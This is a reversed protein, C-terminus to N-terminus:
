GGTKGQFWTRISDTKAEFLRYMVWAYGFTLMAFIGIELLHSGYDVPAWPQRWLSLIMTQFPVHVAYLTYSMAAGGISLRVLLTPAVTKRIGIWIYLVVAFPVAVVLGAYLQPAGSWKAMITLICWVLTPLILHHLQFEKKPLSAVIWGIAWMSGYLLLRPGVLFGIAIAVAACAIRINPKYRSSTAFWVLPFWAYYWFEYALSWLAVNSGLTGVRSAQLFVLGGFFQSYLLSPHSLCKYLGSTGFSVYGILDLSLGIVMAPIMVVLLRSLRRLTYQRVQFRGERIQRFAPGGVLYGSLVFFIVVAITGASLKQGEGIISLDMWSGNSTTPNPTQPSVQERSLMFLHGVMVVLAAVFRIADLGVHALVKEDPSKTAIM